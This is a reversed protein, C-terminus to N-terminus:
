VYLDHVLIIFYFFMKSGKLRLCNNSLQSMDALEVHFFFKTTAQTHGSNISNHTVKERKRTLTTTVTRGSPAMRILLYVSKWKGDLTERGTFYTWISRLLSIIRRPSLLRHCALHARFPPPRSHTDHFNTTSWNHEIHSPLESWFVCLLCLAVCVCSSSKVHKSSSHIHKPILSARPLLDPVM